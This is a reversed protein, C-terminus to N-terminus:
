LLNYRKFKQVVGITKTAEGIAIPLLGSAMPDLTGAHGVKRISLSNSILDVVKRSSMGKPKDVLLWGNIKM